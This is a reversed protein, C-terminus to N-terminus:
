SGRQVGFSNSQTFWILTSEDFQKVGQEPRITVLKEFNPITLFLLSRKGM